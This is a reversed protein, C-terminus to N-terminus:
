ACFRRGTVGADQLFFLDDQQFGPRDEVFGQFHAISVRNLSRQATQLRPNQINGPGGVLVHGAPDNGNPVGRPGDTVQIRGAERQSHFHDLVM